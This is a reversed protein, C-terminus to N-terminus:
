LDYIGLNSNIFDLFVIKITPNTLFLIFTQNKNNNNNKKIMSTMNMTYCMKVYVLHMCLGYIFGVCCVFHDEIYSKYTEVPCMLHM